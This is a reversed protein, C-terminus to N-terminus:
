VLPSDEARVLDDHDERPRDHESARQALWDRSQGEDLAVKAVRRLIERYASLCEPSDLFTSTVDDPVYVVPRASTYEMMMFAGAMGASGAAVPIVRIGIHPRASAFVLHLLQDNMVADSGVPLRLANEHVFFTCWPPQHRRLLAQREKRARVKAEIAHEPHMGWSTIVARAYDETQLLGPVVAPEFSHMRAATTEITILSRLEDALLTGHPQLWYDHQEHFFELVRKIDEGPTRCVALYMAADVESVTRAGREMNSVKSPSWSLRQALQKSELGARERWLRLEAGLARGRATVDHTDM